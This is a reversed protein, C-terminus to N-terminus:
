IMSKHAARAAWTYAPLQTWGDAKVPRESSIFGGLQPVCLSSFIHLLYSGYKPRDNPRGQARKKKGKMPIGIATERNPSAAVSCMVSIDERAKRKM